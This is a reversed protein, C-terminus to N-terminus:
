HNLYVPNGLLLLKGEASVVDARIWHPKGDSAYDFALQAEDGGIAAVRLPQIVRGNDTVRLQAGRMATVQVRFQVAAGAPAPLADGMAAEAGGVRARVELLGTGAGTVDVFVHGARIGQLIALQSLEPAQVVTTPKGIGHEDPRHSDSGGIATIRHGANLQKEWFPVGSWPTDADAGNVAEIAQVLRM